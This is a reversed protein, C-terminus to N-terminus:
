SGFLVVSLSVCATYGLVMQTFFLRGVLSNLAELGYPLWAAQLVGLLLTVISALKVAVAYIGVDARGLRTAIIWQGSSLLVYMALGGPLLPLGFRFLASRLQKPRIRPVVYERFSRVAYVAVVVAAVCSGELYGRLGRHFWLLLAVVVMATLISQALSITLYAARRRLVRALDTMQTVFSLFYA